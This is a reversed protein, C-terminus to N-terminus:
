DKDWFIPNSFGDRILPANENLDRENQPYIQRILLKDPRPSSSQTSAFTTLSDTG